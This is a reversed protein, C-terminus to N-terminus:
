YQVCEKEKLFIFYEFKKSLFLNCHRYKFFFFIGIKNLISTEDINMVIKWPNLPYNSHINFPFKEFCVTDILGNAM